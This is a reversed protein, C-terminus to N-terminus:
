VIYKCQLCVIEIFSIFQVTVYIVIFASLASSSLSIWIIRKTKKETPNKYIFLLVANPKKASHWTMLTKFLYM